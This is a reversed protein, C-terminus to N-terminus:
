IILLKTAETSYQSSMLQQLNSLSLEPDGNTFSEKRIYKSDAYLAQWFNVLSRIDSALTSGHHLPTQPAVSFFDFASYYIRQRLINKSIRSGGAESQIMTLAASLLRFRPNSTNINRSM